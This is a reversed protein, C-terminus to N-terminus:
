QQRRREHDRRVYTMIYDYVAKKGCEFIVANADPHKADRVCSNNVNCREALDKLFFQGAPSRFIEGAALSLKDHHEEVKQNQEDVIQQDEPSMDLM